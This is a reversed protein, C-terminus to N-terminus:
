DFYKKLFAFALFPICVYKPFLYTYKVLSPLFILSDKVKFPITIEKSNKESVWESAMYFM